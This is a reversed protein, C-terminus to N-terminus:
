TKKDKTKEVVAEVGCTFALLREVDNCCYVLEGSEDRVAVYGNGAVEEVNYGCRKLRLRAANIINEEERVM